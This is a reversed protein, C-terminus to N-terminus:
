EIRYDVTLSGMTATKPTYQLLCDPEVWAGSHNWDVNGPGITAAEQGPIGITAQGELWGTVHVRLRTPHHPGGMMRYEGPKSVASIRLTSTKLSQWGFYAIAVSVAVLIFVATRHSTPQKTHEHAEDV